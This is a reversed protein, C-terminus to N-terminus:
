GGGHGEGQALPWSGGGNSAGRWAASVPRGSRSRRCRDFLASNSSCRWSLGEQVRRALGQSERERMVWDLNQLLRFPLELTTKGQQLVNSARELTELDGSFPLSTGGNAVMGVKPCQLNTYANCAVAHRNRMKSSSRGGAEMPVRNVEEMGSRSAASPPAELIHRRRPLSRPWRPSESTGAHVAVDGQDDVVFRGCYTACIWSEGRRTLASAAHVASGKRRLRVNAGEEIEELRVERKGAVSPSALEARFRMRQPPLAQQLSWAECRLSRALM